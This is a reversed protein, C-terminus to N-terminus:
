CSRESDLEGREGLMSVLYQEGNLDTVVVPFSPIGGSTKGDGRTRPRLPTGDWRQGDRDVDSEVISWRCTPTRCAALVLHGPNYPREERTM